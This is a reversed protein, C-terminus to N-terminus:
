QIVLPVVDYTFSTFADLGLNQYNWQDFAFRPERGTILTLQLTTGPPYKQRLMDVVSPPVQVRTEDGPVVMQWQPIPGALTPEDIQVIALEADPGAEATWEIVGAFGPNPEIMRTLGLLPGMSIGGTGDPRESLDGAQRRFSVTLPIVNQGGLNGWLQFVFNEGGIVPLNELTATSGTTTIDGVPIVGEQGLDMYGYVTSVGAAGGYVPPNDIAIPVSLDLHMDLTIDAGTVAGNTSANVGRRVGMLLPEFRGSQNDVIGYVAYMALLQDSAFEYAYTGGDRAIAIKPRASAWPPANYVSRVSYSVYAVEAENPGLTRGPPRKFGFVRGSVLAGREDDDQPGACGPDPPGFMNQFDWSGDGDNDGCDACQTLPGESSGGTCQCEPDDGDILGDGDDDDGNCCTAPEMPIMPCMCLDAYQQKDEPLNQPGCQCGDLDALEPNGDGDEDVLGDGDDDLGNDCQPPEFNPIMYVTLNESEQNVVTVTQYAELAVTVVQAKVLGPDSFTIQGRDDTLGQLTTGDDAGLIVTCGPLPIGFRANGGDLATVNLTGALPGGSSGGYANTPDFYTYAAPLTVSADGASVTVDVTGVDGRPATAVAVFPSEVVVNPSPTGGFSVALGDAFGQGLLTM